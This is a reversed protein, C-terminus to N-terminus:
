CFRIKNFVTECCNDKQIPSTNISSSYDASLLPVTQSSRESISKKIEQIKKSVMENAYELAPYIFMFATNVKPISALTGLTVCTNHNSNSTEGFEYGMIFSLSSSACALSLSLTGLAVSIEKRHIKQLLESMKELDLLTQLLNGLVGITFLISNNPSDKEELINRRLEDVITAFSFLILTSGAMTIGYSITPRPFNETDTTSIAATDSSNKKMLYSALKKINEIDLSGLLAEIIEMGGLSLPIALALWKPDYEFDYEEDQIGTLIYAGIGACSAVSLTVMAQFLKKGLAKNSPEPKNILQRVKSVLDSMQALYRISTGPVGLTNIIARGATNDFIPMQKVLIKQTTTIYYASGFYTAGGAIAATGASYLWNCILSTSSSTSLHTNKM